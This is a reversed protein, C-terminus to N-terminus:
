YLSTFPFAKYDPNFSEKVSNLEDIVSNLHLAEQEKLTEVTKVTTKVTYRDQSIDFQQFKTSMHQIQGGDAHQQRDFTLTLSFRALTFLEICFM